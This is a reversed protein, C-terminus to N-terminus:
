IKNRRNKLYFLWIYIKELNLKFFLIQISDKLGFDRFLRVQNIYNRFHVRNEKVNKIIAKYDYDNNRVENQIYRLYTNVVCARYGKILEYNNCVIEDYIVNNVYNMDKLLSPIYKVTTSGENVNYIYYESSDIYINNSYYISQVLFLYDESIRIGYSFMLNNELLLKRSFIARWVYGYICNKVCIIKELVSKSDFSNIKKLEKTDNKRNSSGNVKFGFLVIDNKILNPVLNEICKNNIFDDSDLFMIYDGNASKIGTNRSDSVGTNAKNILKIRKDIKSLEDVIKSTKDKSGDNVVIIEINTYSQNMITSLCEKIHKEGNYVPIIISILM